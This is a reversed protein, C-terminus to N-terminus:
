YGENCSVRGANPLLNNDPCVRLSPPPIQSILHSCNPIPRVKPSFRSPNVPGEDTGIEAVSWGYICTELQPGETQSLKATEEGARRSNHLLYNLPLTRGAAQSHTFPACFVPFFFFFSFASGSTTWFRKATQALPCSLAQKQIQSCCTRLRTTTVEWFNPKIVHKSRLNSFHANQCHTREELQPIESLDSLYWQFDTPIKRSETSKNEFRMEGFRGLECGLIFDITRSALELVWASDVTYNSFGNARCQEGYSLEEGPKHLECTHMKLM